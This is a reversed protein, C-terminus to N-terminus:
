IGLKARADRPRSGSSVPRDERDGTGGFLGM